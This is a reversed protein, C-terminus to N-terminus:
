KCPPCSLMESMKKKALGSTGEVADVFSTFCAIYDERSVTSMAKMILNRLKDDKIPDAQEKAADEPLEEVREM